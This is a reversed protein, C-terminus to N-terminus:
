RIESNGPTGCVPLTVTNGDADRQTNYQVLNSGDVVPPYTTPICGTLMNDQLHVSQLNALRQGVISPIEGTLDNHSLFLTKVDTMFRLRKPIVGTLNNNQLLLSRAYILSGLEQPVPGTLQNHALSFERITELNGLELPVSGTLRNNSLILYWVRNLNGLEKPLIGAIQQRATAGQGQDLNLGYGAGAGFYDNYIRIGDWESIHREQTWNLIRGGTGELESKVILLTKCDEYLTRNNRRLVGGCISTDLYCENHSPQVWRGNHCTYSCTRESGAECTGSTDGTDTQQLICRVGHVSQISGAPCRNPPTPPPPAPVGPAPSPQTASGVECGDANTTSETSILGTRYIDISKKLGSQTILVLRVGEYTDSIRKNPGNPRVSSDTYTYTEGTGVSFINTHVERTPQEISLHVDFNNRQAASESFGTAPNPEKCLMYTPEADSCDVSGNALSIRKYMNTPNNTDIFCTDFFYEEQPPLTTIQDLPIEARRADSFNNGTVGSFGTFTGPAKEIRFSQLIGDRVQVRVIQFGQTENVATASLVETSLSQEQALRIFEAIEAARVRLSSRTTFNTYNAIVTGTIVIIVAITVLIELLTFGGNHQHRRHKKVQRM